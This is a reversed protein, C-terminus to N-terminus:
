LRRSVLSVSSRGSRFSSPLLPQCGLGVGSAPGDTSHSEQAQGPVAPRLAQSAVQLPLCLLRLLAAQEVGLHSKNGGRRTGLGQAFIKRSHLLPQAGLRLHQFCRQTPCTGPVLPLAPDPQLQPLLPDDPSGEPRHGGEQDPLLGPLSKDQAEGGM